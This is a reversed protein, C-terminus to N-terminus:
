VISYVCSSSNTYLKFLNTKSIEIFLLLSFEFKTCVLFWFLDLILFILSCTVIGTIVPSKLQYTKIVNLAHYLCFLPYYYLQNVVFAVAFIFLFIKVSKELSKVVKDHQIRLCMALKTVELLVDCTDRLVM